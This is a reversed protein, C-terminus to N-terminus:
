NSVSQVAALLWCQRNLNVKKEEFCDSRDLTQRYIISEVQLRFSMREVKRLKSDMM